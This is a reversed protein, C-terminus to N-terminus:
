IRKHTLQMEEELTDLYQPLFDKTIVDILFSQFTLPNSEEVQSQFAVEYKVYNTETLKPDEREDLVYEFMKGDFIIAPYYVILINPVTGKTLSSRTWGMLYQLARLVQNTATFIQDYGKSKEGGTFAVYSAVGFRDLPTKTVYHNHFLSRLGTPTLTPISVTQLYGITALDPEKTLFSSPPTYFVWAKESKKCEAILTYNLRRYTGSERDIVKHAAIDVYKAENEDKDYYFVQHRATWGKNALRTGAIVELPFGAQKMDKVINDIESM